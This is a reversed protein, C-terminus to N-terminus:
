AGSVTSGATPASVVVTPPAVVNSVTVSVGASTVSTSATRAVASVTHAGNSAGTSNWNVSYPATTDEGGVNVGDVRFQVGLVGAGTTSASLVVAAGSVTSGATPASVVVTPPAVVNSVTVSVGASTVSTSATRAVASVTHAGNSAGTSNWNVSYPATTDEGGVNVGDVRFQVGLVGAGTTSASLVVAAGSVTSGATPASVVVTPPAPPAGATDLSADDITLNGNAAILHFVTMTSVNAPTTFTATAQRWTTASAPQNNFWVYSLAGTTSRYEAVLQSQVSAQYWDSYTYQTSPTVPVHNFFWKADGSSRASMTVRAARSGTHATTVWSFTRTNTGWGGTSWSAPATGSAAATELSPNAILQAAEARGAGAIALVASILAVSIAASIRGLYKARRM